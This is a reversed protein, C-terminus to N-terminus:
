INLRFTALDIQLASWVIIVACHKWPIKPYAFALGGESEDEVAFLLCLLAFQVFDRGDKPQISSWTGWALLPIEELQTGEPQFCTAEFGEIDYAVVVRPHFIIVDDKNVLRYACSQAIRIGIKGFCIDSIHIFHRIIEILSQFLQVQIRHSAEFFDSDICVIRQKDKSLAISSLVGWRNPQLNQLLGFLVFPKQLPQFPYSDSVAECIWGAGEWHYSLIGVVESEYVVLLAHLYFLVYEVGAVLLQM